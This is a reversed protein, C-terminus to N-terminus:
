CSTLSINRYSMPENPDKGAKLIPIVIAETWESSIEGTSWIKNYIEFVKLREPREMQKLFGYHIQDPGPSSCKFNGIQNERM